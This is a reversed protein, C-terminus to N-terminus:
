VVNSPPRNSIQFSSPYLCKNLDTTESLQNASERFLLPRLVFPSPLYEVFCQMILFMVLLKEFTGGAINKELKKTEVNVSVIAALIQWALLLFERSM